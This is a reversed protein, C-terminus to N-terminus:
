LYDKPDVEIYVYDGNSDTMVISVIEPLIDSEVLAKIVKLRVEETDSEELEYETIEQGRNGDIDDGYIEKYERM